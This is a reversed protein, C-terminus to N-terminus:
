IAFTFWCAVDIATGKKEEKILFDRVRDKEVLVVEIEEEPELEQRPEANEPGNEDIEMEFVVVDCDLIAPNIKLVPSRSVIRGIYGTEEKLENHAQKRLDHGPNVVGAPLAIVHRNIGARFQRLLIYRGSHIMWALIIIVTESKSREVVEWDVVEGLVSRYTARKISLWDGQFIIKEERDRM